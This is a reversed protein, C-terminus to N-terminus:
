GHEKMRVVALVPQFGMLIAVVLADGCANYICGISLSLLLM